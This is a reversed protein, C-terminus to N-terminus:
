STAKRLHAPQEGRGPQGKAWEAVTRPSFCVTEGRQVAVVDSPSCTGNELLKRALLVIIEGDGEVSVGQCSAVNIPRFESANRYKRRTSLIIAPASM